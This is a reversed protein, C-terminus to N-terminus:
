GNIKDAWGAYYRLTAILNPIFLQLGMGYPRGMDLSELRALTEADREVLEALRHLLLGKRSPALAGWEGTFARRAAAVAADVDPSSAAALEVLPEGTAPNDTTYTDAGATWAGGIFLKTNVPPLDIM